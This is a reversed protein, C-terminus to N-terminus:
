IIEFEINEETLFDYSIHDIINTDSLELNYFDVYEHDFYPGAHWTNVELKIFCNSPIIFAEIETLKPAFTPAPPAVAMLWNKGNLSGLCQTCKSHRTIKNFKRGRKDLGMIYFRPIGQNLLLQAENDDFIKGHFSPLILQGFPRFNEKTIPKAVLKTLTIQSLM